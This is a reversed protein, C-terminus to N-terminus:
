RLDNTNLKTAMFTGLIKIGRQAHALTPKLLQKHRYIIYDFFSLVAEFM